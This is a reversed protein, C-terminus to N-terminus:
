NIFHRNQTSDLRGSSALGLTRKQPSGSGKSNAKVLEASLKGIVKDQILLRKKVIALERSLQLNRAVQDDIPNTM